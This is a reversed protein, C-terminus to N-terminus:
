TTFVREMVSTTLKTEQILSVPNGPLSQVPNRRIRQNNVRDPKHYNM